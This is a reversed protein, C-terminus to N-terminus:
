LYFFVVNHKAAFNIFMKHLNWLLIKEYFSLHHIATAM